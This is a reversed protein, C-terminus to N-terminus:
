IKNKSMTAAQDVLYRYLENPVTKFEQADDMPAGPQPIDEKKAFNSM